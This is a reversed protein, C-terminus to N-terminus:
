NAGARGDTAGMARTSGKRRFDGATLGAVFPLWFLLGYLGLAEGAMSLLPTDSAPESGMAVMALQLVAFVAAGAVVVAAAERGGPWVRRRAAFGFASAAPVWVLIALFHFYQFAGMSVGAFALIGLALLSGHCITKAPAIM